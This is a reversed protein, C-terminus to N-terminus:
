NLAISNRLYHKIAMSFFYAGALVFMLACFQFMQATSTWDAVYGLIISGLGIGLDVAAYYTANAVGRREPMVMNMVMTQLTPIVSGCGLGIIFGATLYVVLSHGTASLLMFGVFGLVFSLLMIQQPGKKDMLKGAYPRSISVGIALLLFFLGSHGVGTESSFVAAFAFISAYAFGFLFVVVSAHSAKAEFMQKNKRPAQATTEPAKAITPYKVMYALVLSAVSIGFAVYFLMSFNSDGLIWLGLMPGLAMSLTISLGFYGIGEGRRRAPVLDAPITGGGTTVMGWTFGHLFRLTLLLLFTTAYSYLFMSMAYLLMSIVYVKRRGFTDLAYGSFPRILLASLAYLGIIYGIKTKDEELVQTVYMPLVPLLFYFGAAMLLYSLCFLIFDRTWLKEQKKV